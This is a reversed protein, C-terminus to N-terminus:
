TMTEFVAKYLEGESRDVSSWMSHEARSSSRLEARIQCTRDFSRLQDIRDYAGIQVTGSSSSVQNFRSHDIDNMFSWRARIQNDNQVSGFALTDKSLTIQYSSNLLSLQSSQDSKNRERRRLQIRFFIDSSVPLTESLTRRYRLLGSSAAVISSGCEVFNETFYWYAKLQFGACATDWYSLLALEIRSDKALFGNFDIVAQRWVRLYNEMEDEESIAVSGGWLTNDYAIIGGVKVLELLKEHYNIYNDKDADVFAFDFTGNEGNAVFEKLVLNADSQIFKIKHAVNAKQIFPLGTEFAERDPDIAVIQLVYNKKFYQYTKWRVEYFLCYIYIYIMFSRVYKEMRPLALATSLLSYGTFVGLEITKKANILKLLMSIFLGEDAPVNLKSMSNYKEVTAMRIEKLQEHERPYAMTELIYKSLAQSQLITGMFKEKM